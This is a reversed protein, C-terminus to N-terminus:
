EQGYREYVEKAMEGAKLLRHLWIEEEKEEGEVQVQMVIKFCRESVRECARIEMLEEECIFYFLELGTIVDDESTVTFLNGVPDPKWERDEFEFFIYVDGPKFIGADSIM